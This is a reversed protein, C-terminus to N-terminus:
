VSDRQWLGHARISSAGDSYSFILGLCAGLRGPPRSNHGLPPDVRCRLLDLSRASCITTDCTRRKQWLRHAQISSAGDSYGFILGLCAGLRGPPGFSARRALLPRAPLSLSVNAVNITATKGYRPVDHKRGHAPNSVSRTCGSAPVSHPLVCPDGSSARRGGRPTKGLNSWCGM